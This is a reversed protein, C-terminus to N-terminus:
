GYIGVQRFLDSSKKLVEDNQELSIFISTIFPMLIIKGFSNRRHFFKYPFSQKKM